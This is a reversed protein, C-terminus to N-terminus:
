AAPLKLEFVSWGDRYRYSLDGQMLRALQRSVTLGLGVSAPQGKRDHASSYAEFIEEQLYEDLEEGDDRVEVIADEGSRYARLEVRDGGYRRANTILNRLVQRVRTPDGILRLGPEVTLTLGERGLGTLVADIEEVADLSREVVTVTGIDSRAAVLLDEVIHAVETSQSFILGVFEEVERRTFTEFHERLEAALGVVATLPTRLEHSVSAVFEDKSAVLSNLEAARRRREWFAGIMKAATDLLLLEEPDIPHADDVDSFGVVGALEEDIFIPIKLESRVVTPANLYLDREEGELDDITFWHAEGRSLRRYSMPMRSWPIRQWYAAAEWGAENGASAVSCISSVVPGLEPDEECLNVFAHTYSTADLLELLAKELSREDDLLLLAQAAEAVAHELRARREQTRLAAVLRERQLSSEWYAGIMAAGTELLAVDGPSWRHSPNRHSFGIVGEWQGEVFIPIKVVSTAVSHSRNLYFDAEVGELEDLTFAFTRGSEMYMLSTPMDAWSVLEFTERDDEPIEVGHRAIAEVGRLAFGLEDDIVNRGLFAFDSDSATLLAELAHQLAQKGPFLLLRRACEGIAHEFRVSHDRAEAMQEMTTQTDRRDLYAGIMSVATSALRRDEPRPEVNRDWAFGMIGWWSGARRIPAIVHTVLGHGLTAHLTRDPEDLDDVKFSVVEGAALRDRLHPRRDWAINRWLEIDRGDTRVGDRDVEVLAFSAPGDVNKDLYVVTSDTADLLARLASELAKPVRARESGDDQLLYSACAAIASGYADIPKGQNLEQTVM